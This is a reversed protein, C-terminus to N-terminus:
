IDELEGIKEVLSEDELEQLIESINKNLQPHIFDPVIEQLPVLVFKRFILMPHPVVLRPALAIIQKDIFLIDIDICREGWKIIRKRGLQKEIALINDLIVSPSLDSELAIVMNLFDGQDKKGWAETEYISSKLTIKGILNEIEQTAEFLFKRRDGLNSGLSLYVM